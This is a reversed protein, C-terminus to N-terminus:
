FRCKKFITRILIKFIFSISQKKSSRFFTRVQGLPTSDDSDDSGPSPSGVSIPSGGNHNMAPRAPHYYSTPPAMGPPVGVGVGMMHGGHNSQLSLGASTYVPNGPAIGQLYPYGTTRNKSLCM